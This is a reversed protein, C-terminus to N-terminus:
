HRREEQAPYPINGRAPSRPKMVVSRYSATFPYDKPKAAEYYPRREVSIPHVLFLPLACSVLIIKERPREGLGKRKRRDCDLKILALDAIMETSIILANAWQELDHVSADGQIFSSVEHHEENNVRQLFNSQSISIHPKIM